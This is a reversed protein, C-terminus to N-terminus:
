RWDGVESQWITLASIAATEARLIRPGLSVPLVFPLNRLQAREKASFGGEPGILIAAKPKGQARLVEAIPAGRGPEDGWPRTDDDGSEDAYILQRDPDWGALLDSLRALETVNPVDLRETQEAAEIATAQLKEIRLRESQVRETIVPLLRAAGLETAKEVIFSTRAKMKLPAFLLWLDSVPTQSRLKERATLRAVKKGAASIEAHWEGDRGNFVSVPDGVGRRMVRLLYHSQAESLSFESNEALDADVYLRAITRM